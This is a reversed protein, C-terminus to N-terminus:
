KADGPDIVCPRSFWDHVPRDTRNRWRDASAASLAAAMNAVVVADFSGRVAEFPPLIAIGRYIRGPRCFRDDAIAIPDIGALRAGRVFPFVNKGLDALLIRRVGSDALAVMRRHVDDWRFFAEFTRPGLPRPNIGSHRTLMRLADRQGRRCADLLGERLALWRYRQVWDRRYVERAHGPIHRDIVLLNNRTDFYATRGSRRGRPTKLHDVLLDAFVGVKWGAEAIRFCVDFEEAQMFLFRDLGGVARLADTRFGVGCGVFVGPLASSERRGDPLEVTFGACALGPDNNFRDLMRPISGPRPVSDDDLFLVYRGRARSVGFAKACSGLNRRLGILRDARMRVAGRTGDRSDNDVVIVEYQSRPLDLTELAHLTDRVVPLRGRTALM